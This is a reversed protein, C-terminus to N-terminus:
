RTDRDFYLRYRGRSSLDGSYVTRGNLTARGGAPDLVFRDRDRVAGAYLLRDADADYVYITGARTPEYTLRSSSSTSSATDVREASRPIEDMGRTSTSRDRTDRSPERGIVPDPADRDHTSTTDHTRHKKPKDSKDNSECGAVLALAFVVRPLWRSHPTM